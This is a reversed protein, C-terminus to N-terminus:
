KEGLAKSMPCEGYIPRLAGCKECRKYDSMEYELASRLRSNEEILEKNMQIWIYQNKLRDRMWKAGAIFCDGFSEIYTQHFEYRSRAEAEIQEDTM